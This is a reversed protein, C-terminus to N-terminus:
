DGTGSGDGIDDQSPKEAEFSGEGLDVLSDEAVCEDTCEDLCHGTDDGKPYHLVLLQDRTSQEGENALGLELELAETTAQLADAQTLLGRLQARTEALLKIATQRKDQRVIPM